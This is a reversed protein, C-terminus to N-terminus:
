FTHAITANAPAMTATSTTTLNPNVTDLATMTVLSLSFMEPDEFFLLSDYYPTIALVVIVNMMQKRFPPKDPVGGLRLLYEITFWSICVAEILALNPNDIPHNKKSDYHRFSPMPNLCMGVTSLLVMSISLLSIYKPLVSKQPKKLRTESSERICPLNEMELTKVLGPGVCHEQKRVLPERMHKVKAKEGVDEM